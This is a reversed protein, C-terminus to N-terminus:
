INVKGEKKFNKFFKLCIMKGWGKGYKILQFDRM